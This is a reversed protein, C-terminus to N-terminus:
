LGYFNVFPVTQVGFAQFPLATLNYLGLTVWRSLIGLVYSLPGTWLLVFILAFFIMQYRYFFQVASDPLFM